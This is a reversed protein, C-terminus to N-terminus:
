HASACSIDGENKYQKSRRAKIPSLYSEKAADTFM